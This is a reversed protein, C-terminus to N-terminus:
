VNAFIEESLQNIKKDDDFLSKGIAEVAAFLLIMPFIGIRIGMLFIDYICNSCNISWISKKENKDGKKLKCDEAKWCEVETSSIRM